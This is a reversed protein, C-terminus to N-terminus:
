QIDNSIWVAPRTCVNSENSHAMVRNAGTHSCQEHRIMPCPTSTSPRNKQQAWQARALPALAAASTRSATPVRGPHRTGARPAAIHRVGRIHPDLRPRGMSERVSRVGNADAEIRVRLVGAGTEVDCEGNSDPEVIRRDVVFKVLCRLGNGSMEAESGDANFIRMRVPAVDSGTALILGDAGVGFHRDCMRRALASWDREVGRADIVVFDNGTGHLKAFEM